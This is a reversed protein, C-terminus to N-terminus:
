YVNWFLINGKGYKLCYELAKKDYNPNSQFGYDIKNEYSFPKNYKYLKLNNPEIGSYDAGVIVGNVKINLDLKEVAKLIAQVLTGSGVACWIENINGAKKIVKIARDTLIDIYEAGGFNIKKCDKRDNCYKLAKSNVNSLYGFPVEIVKSGNNLVEIQNKHLEKRKAVFIIAKNKFYKSLALQFGGYVPSAYVYEKIGDEKIYPMFISKTGGKLKDDRLIKIGFKNEIIIPYSM